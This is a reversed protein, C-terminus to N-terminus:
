TRMPSVFGQGHRMEDITKAMQTIREDQVAVTTLTASINSMTDALGEQQQQMNKLDHRLIRIDGRLTFFAGVGVVMFAAIQLLNGISLTWDIMLKDM